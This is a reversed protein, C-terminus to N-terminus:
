EYIQVETKEQNDNDRSMLKYELRLEAIKDADGQKEAIAIKEQLDELAQSRIVTLWLSPETELSILIISFRVRMAGIGDGLSVLEDYKKQLEGLRKERMVELQHCTEKEM